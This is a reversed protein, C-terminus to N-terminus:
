NCIFNKEIIEAIKKIATKQKKKSDELAKRALAYILAISENQTM